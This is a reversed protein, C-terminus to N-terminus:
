ITGGGCNCLVSFCDLGEFSLHSLDIFGLCFSCRNAVLLMFFVKYGGLVELVRCLSNGFGNLNQLIEVLSGEDLQAGAGLQLGLGLLRLKTTCLTINCVGDDRDQFHGLLIECCQKCLSLGCLILSGLCELCESILVLDGLGGLFSLCLALCRLHFAQSHLEGVALLVM